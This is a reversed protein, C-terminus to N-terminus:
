INISSTQVVPAEMREALSFSSDAPALFKIIAM